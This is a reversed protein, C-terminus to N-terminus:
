SAGGKRSADDCRARRAQAAARAQMRRIKAERRPDRQPQWVAGRRLAMPEGTQRPAGPDATPREPDGLQFGYAWRPGNETDLDVVVARGERVLAWPVSDVDDGHKGNRCALGDPACDPGPAHDDVSIRRVTALSVGPDTGFAGRWAVVHGVRLRSDLPGTM